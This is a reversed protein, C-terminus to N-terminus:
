AYYVYPIQPTARYTVLIKTVVPGGFQLVIKTLEAGASWAVDGRVIHSLARSLSPPRGRGEASRVEGTGPTKHASSLKRLYWDTWFIM